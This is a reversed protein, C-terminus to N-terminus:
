VEDAQTIYIVGKAESVGSNKIHIKAVPWIYIGRILGTPSYGYFVPSGNKTTIMIQIMDGEQQIHEFFVWTGVVEVEEIKSEGPALYYEIQDQRLVKM